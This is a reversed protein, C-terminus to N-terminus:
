LAVVAEMFLGYERSDETIVRRPEDADHDAARVKRDLDQESTAEAWDGDLWIVVRKM